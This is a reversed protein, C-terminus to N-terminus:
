HTVYISSFTSNCMAQNKFLVVIVLKSCVLKNQPMASPSRQVCPLDRIACLIFTYRHLFKGTFHSSNYFKLQLCKLICHQVQAVSYKYWLFFCQSSCFSFVTRYFTVICLNYVICYKQMCYNFEGGHSLDVNSSFTLVLQTQNIRKIVYDEGEGDLETVNDFYLYLLPESISDPVNSIVLSQGATFTNAVPPPKKPEVLEVTM